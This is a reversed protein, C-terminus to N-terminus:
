PSPSRWRSRIWSRLRGREGGSLVIRWAALAYVTATPGAGLLLQTAPGHEGLLWGLTKGTLAAVVVCAGVRGLVDWPTRVRNDTWRTVAHGLLFSATVAASVAMAGTVGEVGYRGVLLLGGGLAAAGEGLSTWMVVRQMNLGSLLTGSVNICMQALLWVAFLGLLTESPQIRGGTWLDILADGFTWGLVALAGAIGLAAKTGLGFARAVWSWEGRTSAEGYAPWFSRAILACVGLAALYLALPVSFGPVAAPGLGHSVVVSGFALKMLNALNTIGFVVGVSLLAPALARSFASIHLSLAPSRRVAYYGFVTWHLVENALGAAAVVVLRERFLVVVVALVCLQLVSSISQYASVAYQQQFGQLGASFVKLPMPLLLRCLCIAVVIRALPVQDPALGLLRGLPLYPVLLPLAGLAVVVVGAYLVFATAVIRTISASDDRGRAAAVANLVSFHLGFDLLQATAVFGLIAMYLGYQELTLGWLLLPVRVLALFSQAGKEAAGVLVALRALRFRERSRASPSSDTM